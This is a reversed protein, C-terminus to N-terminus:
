HLTQPNVGDRVGGVPDDRPDDVVLVSGVHVVLVIGGAVEQVVDVASGPCRYRLNLTRDESVALNSVCVLAVSAVIYLVM